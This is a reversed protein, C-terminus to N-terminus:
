SFSLSVRTAVEIAKDPDFGNSEAVQRLFTEIDVKVGTGYGLIRGKQQIIRILAVIADEDGALVRPMLGNAAWELRALDLAAHQEANNITAERWLHRIAVMDNHITGLSLGLQNAIGAETKGQLMLESVRERRHEIIRKRQHRTLTLSAKFLPHPVKVEPVEEPENDTPILQSSM